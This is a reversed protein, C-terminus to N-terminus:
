FEENYRTYHLDDVIRYPSRPEALERLRVCGVSPYCSRELLRLDTINQLSGTGFPEDRQGLNILRPSATLPAPNSNKPLDQDTQGCASQQRKPTAAPATGDVRRQPSQRARRYGLLEDPSPTLPALGLMTQFSVYRCFRRNYRIVFENLYTRHAQPAAWSLHRAGLAEDARLSSSDLAACYQGAMKGVTRPDHRYDTLGPHSRHGDTLLTTGTKVNTRVFTEISAASNDPIAGLRIRGSRTDLYKARKRRPKAQNTGRDIVEVAGAILIKASKVPDFFSNDARFPIDAQRVEVVGELPERHPDIMSRRLKKALSWATEYTIGLEAELQVASMGM